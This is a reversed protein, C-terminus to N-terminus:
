AKAMFFEDARLRLLIKREEESQQYLAALDLRLTALRLDNKKAERVYEALKRESLPVVRALTKAAQLASLSPDIERRWYDISERKLDRSEANSRKANQHRLNAMGILAGFAKLAERLCALGDRDAGRELASHALYHWAAARLLYHGEDYDFTFREDGWGKHLFRIQEHDEFRALRTIEETFVSKPYKAVENLIDDRLLGLEERILGPMGPTDIPSVDSM